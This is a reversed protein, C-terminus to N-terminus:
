LKSLVFGVKRRVSSAQAHWLFQNDIILGLLMLSSSYPINCGGLRFSAVPSPLRGHVRCIIIAKVNDLLLFNEMSWRQVTVLDENLREICQSMNKYRDGSYLQVDDAYVHYNSTRIAESLDNIFLSFL